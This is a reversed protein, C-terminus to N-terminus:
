SPEWEVQFVKFFSLVVPIGLFKTIKLLIGLFITDFSSSLGEAEQFLIAGSIPQLPPKTKPYKLFSIKKNLHFM